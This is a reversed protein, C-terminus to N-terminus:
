TGTGIEGFTIIYEENWFINGGGRTEIAVSKVLKDNLFRDNRYLISFETTNEILPSIVFGSRAMGAILRYQKKIGSNLELTIQLESTKFLINALRGIITPKIEIKAFIPRNIRPLVVNEGFTHKESALMFQEGIKDITGKKRLFLFDNETLFTPVYNIMLIPWSAGDEISPLRGDIPEIKFIVNDPAKNGSEIWVDVIPRYGGSAYEALARCNCCYSYSTICGM